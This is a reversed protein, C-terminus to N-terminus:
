DVYSFVISNPNPLYISRNAHRGAPAERTFLQPQPRSLFIPRYLGGNPPAVPETSVIDALRQLPGTKRRPKRIPHKQNPYGAFLRQRCRGSPGTSQNTAM